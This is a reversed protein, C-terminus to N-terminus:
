HPAVCNRVRDWGGIGALLEQTRKQLQESSVPWPPNSKTRPFMLYTFRGRPMGAGTRPNVNTGGLNEALRISVEGLLAKAPGADAVIFPSEKRNDLNMALGVDGFEGTGKLNFFEEPFVIYPVRTSDVYRRVDTVALSRDQLTTRSVFFGVFDGDTQVFPEDPKTPNEVLIAKWNGNPFGANALADIGKDLPHYANPAGDADIAMRTITYFYAQGTPIKKIKAGRYDFGELADCATGAQSLEASILLLILTLFIHLM